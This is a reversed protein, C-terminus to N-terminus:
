LRPQAFDPAKEETDQALTQDQLDIAWLGLKRAAAISLISSDLGQSVQYRRVARRTRMDMVGSIPGAYYDRALLARQVSAIFEPTLDAACPTEFWREQRPVIVEQRTENRYVPPAQIRGDSSVQAPQILIKNNVTEITAKSVTKGWCAAPDAGPPPADIVQTLQPGVANSTVLQADCAAVCLAAM